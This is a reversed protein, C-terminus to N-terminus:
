RLWLEHPGENMETELLPWHWLGILFLFGALWKGSDVLMAMSKGQRGRSEPGGGNERGGEAGAGLVM